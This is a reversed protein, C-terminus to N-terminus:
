EKRYCSLKENIIIKQNWCIGSNICGTCLNKVISKNKRNFIEEEELFIKINEANNIEYSKKGVVIVM